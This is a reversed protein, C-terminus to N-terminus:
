ASSPPDIHMWVIRSYRWIFPVLLLFPIAAVFVVNQLQWHPLVLWYIPLTLVVLVGIALFYSAYMAGFFYGPEREFKHGCQPCCERMTVLGSFVSGDLCKPCKQRLIATLRKVLAM